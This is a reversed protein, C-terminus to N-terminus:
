DVLFHALFIMNEGRGKPILVHPLQHLDAVVNDKIGDSLQFLVSANPLVGLSAYANANIWLTGGLLGLM